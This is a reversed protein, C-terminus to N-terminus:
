PLSRGATSPEDGGGAAEEEAKESGEAGGAPADLLSAALRKTPSPKSSAAKAEGRGATSPAEGGGAARKRTPM